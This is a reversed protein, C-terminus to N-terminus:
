ARAFTERAASLANESVHPPIVEEPLQIAKKRSFAKCWVDKKAKCKKPCKRRRPLRSRRTLGPRALM